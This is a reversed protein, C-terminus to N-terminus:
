RDIRLYQRLLELDDVLHWTTNTSLTSTPTAQSPPGM